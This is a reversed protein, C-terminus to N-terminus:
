LHNSYITWDAPKIPQTLPNINPPFFANGGIYPPTTV